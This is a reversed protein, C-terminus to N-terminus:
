LADLVSQLNDDSVLMRMQQKSDEEISGLRFDQVEEKKAIALVTDLSGADAIIKVYKM